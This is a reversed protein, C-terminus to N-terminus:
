NLTAKQTSADLEIAVTGGSSSIELEDFGGVAVPELSSSPTWKVRVVVDCYTALDLTFPETDWEDLTLDIPITQSGSVCEYAVISHVYVDDGDVLVVSTNPNGIITSGVALAPLLALSLLPFFNRM